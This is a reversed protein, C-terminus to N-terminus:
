GGIKRKVHAMRTDYWVLYTRCPIDCDEKKDCKECPWTELFRRTENPHQYAFKESFYEQKKKKAYANIQKQRYRYRIQWDVCGYTIKCNDAKECTDCPSPYERNKGFTM